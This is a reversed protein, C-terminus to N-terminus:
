KNEISVHMITLFAEQPLEIKGINKMRKKGDKQKQLLKKKRSIDGGYCKALVNKRLQKVTGRAFINNGISAQIIVEFQQRPIIQTLKNVLERGYFQAHERHTILSLADIRENNIIIDVRVMDAVSFNKFRYELSAYGRTTSKLHSFFDLIVESMPIDYTLAVQKEHYVISTQTGRKKTCLMIVNGLYEQPVLVQCEAIPERLEVIKNSPPLKTPSDIDILDGNVTKIQYVVTPATIMLELNYERELREKVIEMHLLGLFGCRFGFGLATSNEPEYFLSADNLRLKGLANRLSEYDHSKIPFLGAYVQPAVKKFGPLANMAINNALTLTDGVPMGLVDKVGCVIWGVEGCHLIGTDKRKPTFIGARDITYVQGTSMVKIKTGQRLIGNKIRTLSVVGLYNDFWSDIILAQLPGQPDGIPPPIDRILRELMDSIGVGTKASCMIADTTDLGIMDEIEQLVRVPDATRLDIKNLVPIVRLNMEIASYFNAITQAEVGQAADIVLIAGECAGLSRSVEYSFDVHGPTDIFNLQYVKGDQAHYTLTVSQAKITIGRERELEMSDLVQETIKRDTLGGCMQILRDAITSKGHDIHAIISFNRIQNM